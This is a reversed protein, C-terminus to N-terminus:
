PRTTTCAVLSVVPPVELTRCVDPTSSMGRAGIWCLLPLLNIGSQSWCCSPMSITSLEKGMHVNWYEPVYVHPPSPSLPLFAFAWQISQPTHSGRRIYPCSSHWGRHGPLTPSIGSGQRGPPLLRGRPQAGATWSEKAGESPACPGGEQAKRRTLGM